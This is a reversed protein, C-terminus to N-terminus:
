DSWLLYCGDGGAAGEGVHVIQGWLLDPLFPAFDEGEYTVVGIFGEVARSDGWDRTRNSPRLRDSVRTVGAARWLLEERRDVPYAGDGFARGLHDLRGFVVDLLHDFPPAQLSSPRRLCTTTVFGVNLRELHGVDQAASEVHDATVALSARAAYDGGPRIPYTLGLLRHTLWAQALFAWPGDRGEPPLYSGMGEYLSEMLAPLLMAWEGLLTLSFQVRKEPQYSVPRLSHMQLVYPLPMESDMPEFLRILECLFEGTGPCGRCSPRQKEPCFGPWAGTRLGRLCDYVTRRICIGEYGPESGRPLLECELLVEYATLGMGM